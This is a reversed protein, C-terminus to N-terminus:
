LLCHIKIKKNLVRVCSQHTQYNPPQYISVDCPARHTQKRKSYANKLIGSIIPATICENMMGIMIFCESHATPTYTNGVM